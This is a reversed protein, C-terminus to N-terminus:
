AGYIHFLEIEEGNIGTVFALRAKVPETLELVADKPEVLVGAGFALMGDMVLPHTRRTFVVLAAGAATLAWTMVTALFAQLLTQAANEMMAALYPTGFVPLLGSGVNAATLQDTVVQELQCRTGIMIM